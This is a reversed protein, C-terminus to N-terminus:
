FGIAAWEVKTFLFCFSSSISSLDLDAGLVSVQSCIILSNFFLSTPQYPPTESHPPPRTVIPKSIQQFQLAPCVAPQFDRLSRQFDIPTHAVPSLGLQVCSILSDVQMSTITSVRSTTNTSLLLFCVRVPKLSFLGNIVPWLLHGSAAPPTGCAAPSQVQCAIKEKRKGDSEGRHDAREGEGREKEKEKEM